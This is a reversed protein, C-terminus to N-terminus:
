ASSSKVDHTLHSNLAGTDFPELFGEQAQNDLKEFEDLIVVGYRGEHERIFKNLASDIHSNRYAGALGFLETKTSISGCPIVISNAASLPVEQLLSAIGQAMETKGHGSPGAFMFVLPRGTGQIDHAYMEKAIDQATEDHGVVQFPLRRISHLQKPVLADTPKKTSGLRISLAQFHQMDETVTTLSGTAPDDEGPLTWGFSLLTRAIQNINLACRMRYPAPQCAESAEPPKLLWVLPNDQFTDADIYHLILRCTEPMAHECAFQLADAAGAGRSGNGTGTAQLAQQASWAFTTRLKLLDKPAELSAEAAQLLRYLPRFPLGATDMGSESGDSSSNAFRM